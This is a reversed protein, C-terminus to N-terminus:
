DDVDEAEEEVPEEEDVDPIEEVDPMAAERDEDQRELEQEVDPIIDDPMIDAILYRSFGTQSMTLATDAFEKLNLPANRKHSITIEDFEGDARNTLSYFVTILRIREYLGTDFEAEANSVVNEFDFMLRQIAVGSVGDKFASSGLDPVHSQTHIQEKILETMFKIYETPIDKTLFSVADKDPLQEFVRRQKILALASKFVGPSASKTQDSLSMKVLLLYAHAFRDFENMSDSILLDYDDILPMVPEIIGQAEQGLYYAIVPIEGFFNPEEGTMILKEISGWKTREMDYSVVRDPYYVTVKWLEDGVPYFRIAVQKQEELAYDYLLIMQRPDIIAFKAEPKKTKRSEDIYLLEYSVGFIGTNRGNLSTKIHENNENFTIMLEDLLRQNESKYTIYRPRYAYGTFTTIIKRGYSVPTRNDPNNPDPSRKDLITTNKGLYYQWLKDYKPVVEAEYTKIFDIIDPETLTDLQTRIKNM